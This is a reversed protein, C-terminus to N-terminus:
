VTSLILKISSMAGTLNSMRQRCTNDNRWIL